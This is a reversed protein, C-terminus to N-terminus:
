AAILGTAGPRNDVVISQGWLETLKIAVLRAVVDPAGGPTNAVILRVPRTPFAQQEAANLASSLAILLAGGVAAAQMRFRM